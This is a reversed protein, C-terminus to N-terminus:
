IGGLDRLTPLAAFAKCDAIDKYYKGGGAGRGLALRQTSVFWEGVCKMFYAVYRVGGRVTEFYEVGDVIESTIPASNAQM